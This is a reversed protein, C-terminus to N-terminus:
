RIECIRARASVANDIRAASENESQVFHAFEAQTMASVSTGQRAQQASLM